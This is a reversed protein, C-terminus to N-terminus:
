KIEIIVKNEIKEFHLDQKIRILVLYDNKKILLNPQVIIVKLDFILKHIQALKLKQVIIARLVIIFILIQRELILVINDPLENNEIKIVQHEWFQDLIAQQDISFLLYNQEKVEFYDWQDYIKNQNFHDLIEIIALNDIEM